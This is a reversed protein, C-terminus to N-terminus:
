HDRCADFMLFKLYMTFRGRDFIDMQRIENDYSVFLGIDDEEYSDLPYEWVKLYVDETDIIVTM